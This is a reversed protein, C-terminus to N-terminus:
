KTNKQTREFVIRDVIIRLDTPLKFATPFKSNFVAVAKTRIDTDSNTLDDYMDTAGRTFLTLNMLKKENETATAQNYLEGGRYYRNSNKRSKRLNRRLRRSKRFAM